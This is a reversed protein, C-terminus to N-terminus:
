ILVGTESGAAVSKWCALDLGLKFSGNQCMLGKQMLHRM